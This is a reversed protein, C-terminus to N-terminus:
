IVRFARNLFFILKDLDTNVNFSFVYHIKHKSIYSISYNREYKEMLSTKINIEHWMFTMFVHITVPKSEIKPLSVMPFIILLFSM